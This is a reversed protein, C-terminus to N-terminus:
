SGERILRGLNTIAVSVAFAVVAVALTSGIVILPWGLPAIAGVRWAIAGELVAPPEITFLLLRGISVMSCVGFVAGVFFGFFRGGLATSRQVHDADFNPEIAAAATDVLVYGLAAWAVIAMMGVMQGTASRGILTVILTAIETGIFVPVFSAVAKSFFVRRAFMPAMRLLEFNRGETGIAYISIGLSAGWPLLALPGNALWFSLDGDAGRQGGRTLAVTYVAVMGLPWFAGSLRRLDRFMVLWEKVVLAGVDQPLWAVLNMAANAFPRKPRAAALGRVKAYGIAFSNAFVFYSIFVCLGAFVTFALGMIAARTVHASATASLASAAWGAPTLSIVDKAAGTQHRLTGDASPTPDPILSRWLASVAFAIGLSGGILFFKARKPPVFRTVAAVLLVSCSTAILLILIICMLAAFVYLAGGGAEYGFAALVLTLVVGAPLAGAMADTLKGGYIVRLPLPLTMLFPLDYSLYLSQLATTSSGVFSGLAALALLSGLIAESDATTDSAAFVQEVMVFLFVCLFFIPGLIVIAKAAKARRSESPHGKLKSWAYRRRVRMLASLARLSGPSGTTRVIV